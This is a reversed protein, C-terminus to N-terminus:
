GAADPCVRFVPELVVADEAARWGVHRVSLDPEIQLEVLGSVLHPMWPADILRYVVECGAAELKVTGDRRMPGGQKFRWAAGPRIVITRDQAAGDTQSALTHVRLEVGSANIVKIEMRSQCSTMLLAVALAVLSRGIM